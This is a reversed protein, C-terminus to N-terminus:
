KKEGKKNKEWEAPIRRETRQFKIYRELDDRSIRVRSGIKYYAISHHHIKLYVANRSIKLLSAAESVTLM